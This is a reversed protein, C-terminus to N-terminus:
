VCSSIFHLRMDFYQTGRHQCNGDNQTHCGSRKCCFLSMNMVPHKLVATRSAMGKFTVTATLGLEFIMGNVTRFDTGNATIVIMGMIPLTRPRVIVKVAHDAATATLLFSDGMTFVIRSDAGDASM